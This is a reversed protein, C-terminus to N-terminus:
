ELWVRPGVHSPLRFRVGALADHIRRITFDSIPRPLADSPWYGCESVEALDPRPVAHGARDECLFAFHLFDTDTDHYYGTLHLVAVDLGAEERVERVATEEPSEGAEAAGGPLEWNLRGYTQKVLLVSGHDDVIIAAAGIKKSSRAM